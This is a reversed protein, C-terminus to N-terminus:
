SQFKLRLSETFTLWLARWSMSSKIEAEIPVEIMRMGRKKAKALIEVDYLFGNMKWYELADRRFLKIGTQTEEPINFFIRIYLRSLYTIIKRHLPAHTMKKSGLVVDYDELFPFLRWLMRPPIDGDGDIFAIMNGTAHLMAERVAWGKGKGERDSAVIIEHAEPISKELEEVFAQINEENHAPVLISLM